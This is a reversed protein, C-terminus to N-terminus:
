APDSGAAEGPDHSRLGRLVADIREASRIVPDAAFTLKPTQKLRTERNIAAQLRPRLEEFAELVEPDAEAGALVDFHVVASGIDAECAVNTVTVDVLRDDDIRELAEALVERLLENVRAMRPYNRKPNTRKAM